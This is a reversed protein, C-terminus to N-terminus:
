KTEYYDKTEELLRNLEEEIMYIDSIMAFTTFKDQPRAVKLEADPYAESLNKQVNAVNRKLRKNKTNADDLESIRVLPIISLEIMKEKYYVYIMANQLNDMSVYQSHQRDDFSRGFFIPYFGKRDEKIKRAILPKNISDAIFAYEKYDVTASFDTTKKHVCIMPVDYKYNLAVLGLTLIYEERNWVYGDFEAYINPDGMENKLLNFVQHFEEPTMDDKFRIAYCERPTYFLSCEFKDGFLGSHKKHMNEDINEITSSISTYKSLIDVFAKQIGYLEEPSLANKSKNKTSFINKIVDFLKM